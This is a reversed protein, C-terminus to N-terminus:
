IKINMAHRETVSFFPRHCTASAVASQQSAVCACTPRSCWVGPKNRATKLSGCTISCSSLDIHRKLNYLHQTCTRGTIWLPDMANFPFMQSWSYKSTRVQGLYHVLYWITITDPLPYFENFNNTVSWKLPRPIAIPGTHTHTHTHTHTNRCYSKFSIVKTRCIQYRENM